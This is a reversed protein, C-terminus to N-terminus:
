KGAPALGWSRLLTNAAHVVGGPLHAQEYIVRSPPAIGSQNYQVLLKYDYREADIVLLDPPRPLEDAIMTCRVWATQMNAVIVDKLCDNPMPRRLKESCWRCQRATVPRYLRQHGRVHQESLSALEERIQRGLCRIDSTNSGYSSTGNLFYFPLRSPPRATDEPPCVAAEVVRVRPNGGYKQRLERAAYPLPEILVAQFGQQILRIVPDHITNHSDHVEQHRHAGVQLLLPAAAEAAHFMSSHTFQSKTPAHLSACPPIAMIAVRPPNQPHRM